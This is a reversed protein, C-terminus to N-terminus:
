WFNAMFILWEQPFKWVDIMNPDMPKGPKGVPGVWEGHWRTNTDEGPQSCSKAGCRPRSPAAESTGPPPYWSCLMGTFLLLLLLLLEKRFPRWRKELGKVWGGLFPFVGYCFGGAKEDDACDKPHLRKYRAM